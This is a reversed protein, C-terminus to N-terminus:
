NLVNQLEKLSELFAEEHEYSLDSPLANDTNTDLVKDLIITKDEIVDDSVINTKVEDKRNVLEDYSIIATEEQEEEYPTMNIKRDKPLNELERSVDKIDFDDNQWLAQTYDMKDPIPKDTIAVLDPGESEIKEELAVKTGTKGERQRTLEEKMEKNQTYILYFMALSILVLIIVLILFIANSETITDIINVVDM